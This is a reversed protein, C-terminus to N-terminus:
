GQYVSHISRESYESCESYDSLGYLWGSWWGRHSEGGVFFDALDTSDTHAVGGGAETLNGAWLSILSIQPIQTLWGM